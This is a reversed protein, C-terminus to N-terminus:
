KKLQFQDCYIWILYIEMTTGIALVSSASVGAVDGLAGVKTVIDALSTTDTATVNSLYNIQDSLARVEDQSMKFATRWNAMMTGADDASLKDFAVAMKAADETFKALDKNTGGESRKIVALM